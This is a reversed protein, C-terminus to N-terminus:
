GPYAFVIDHGRVLQGTDVRLNQTMGLYGSCALFVTSHRVRLVYVMCRKIPALEEISVGVIHSTDISNNTTHVSRTEAWM